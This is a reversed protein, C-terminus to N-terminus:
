SLARIRAARSFVSQFWFLAACRRLTLAVVRLSFSLRRLILVRQGIASQPNVDTAPLGPVCGANLRARAVARGNERAARAKAPSTASRGRRALERMWAQTGQAALQGQPPPHGEAFGATARRVRCYRPRRGRLEPVVPRGGCLSLRHHRPNSSRGAGDPGGQAAM